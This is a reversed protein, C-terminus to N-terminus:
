RQIYSQPYNDSFAIISYRIFTCSGIVVRKNPYELALSEIQSEIAAVACQLRSIYTVNRDQGPLHQDGLHNFM